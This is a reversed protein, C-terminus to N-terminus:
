LASPDVGLQRLVAARAAELAAELAEAREGSGQVRSASGGGKGGAVGCAAQLAPRLDIEVAAPRQFLFPLRGDDRAAVLAIAGGAVLAECAPRLAAAGGEVVRAVLPVGGPSPAADIWAAARAAALEGHLRDREKRLAKAEAQLRAAGEVVAEPHCTLLRVLEDQRRVLRAAEEVARAGCVFHLRTGRGLREQGLLLIPGIESSRAVHTGCCANADWAEIEVVRVREIGAPPAKRLPDLEEAAVFRARVPRAEWVIENARREIAALAPDDLPEGPLDISCRQSGLHFSLTARGGLALCTASLLHQGSHQQMHDRRRVADVHGALRAPGPDREVRHVIAGDPAELVELVAVGGLTGTDHPQGGSTPYFCTRDLVLGVGGDELPRREVVEADFDFRDPDDLYLRIRPDLHM